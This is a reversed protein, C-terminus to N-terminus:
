VHARGIKSQEDYEPLKLVSEDSASSKEEPSQAVLLFEEDSVMLVEQAENLDKFFPDEESSIGEMSSEVLNPRVQEHHYGFDVEQLEKSQNWTNAANQDTQSDPASSSIVSDDKSETSIDQQNEIKGESETQRGSNTEPHRPEGESGLEPAKYRKSSGESPDQFESELHHSGKAPPLSERNVPSNPTRDDASHKLQQKGKDLEAILTDFFGPSRTKSESPTPATVPLMGAMPSMFDKQISDM